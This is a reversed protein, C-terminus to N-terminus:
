GCILFNYNIQRKSKSLYLITDRTGKKKYSVSYVLFLESAIEYWVVILALTLFIVLVASIVFLIWSTM